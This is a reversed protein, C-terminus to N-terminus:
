RDACTKVQLEPRARSRTRRIALILAALGSGALPWTAPEPATFTISISDPSSFAQGPQLDTCGCGLFFSGMFDINGTAIGFAPPMYNFPLGGHLTVPLDFFTGDSFGVLLEAPVENGEDLSGDMAVNVTLAEQNLYSGSDTAAVLFAGFDIELPDTCSTCTISGIGTLRFQLPDTVDPFGPGVFGATINSITYDGVTFQGTSMSLIGTSAFTVPTNSGVVVQLGIGVDTISSARAIGAVCGVMALVTFWGTPYTKPIHM